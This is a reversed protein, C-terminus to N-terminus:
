GNWMLQYVREVSGVDSNGIASNQLNQDSTFIGQRNMLDIYYTNDFINPTRLDQFTFADFDKTPCISKLNKTFTQDMIRDQPYLRNDFSGCQSIRITHGGSLAVVDTPDLNQNDALSQLHTCSCSRRGIFSEYIQALAHGGLSSNDSSIADLILDADAPNFISRIFGEDWQGDAMRQNLAKKKKRNWSDLAKGVQGTKRKFDGGSVVIDWESWQKEVIEKCQDEECWAEEFHFRSSKAKKREGSDESALPIDVILAKHDSAWWQLVTVDAGEFNMLWEENCLGRDLREMVMNTEHRNCWTLDTKSSSFDMLHCDDIAERFEEMAGASRVRGGVKEALSVIENFDGVCLWAGHVEGKIKRLLDWSFHRQSADPNGYFCTLSWPLFNNGAVTALIHGVSNSDVRLKIEHKDCGEVSQGNGSSNSEGTLAQVPVGDRGTRSGGKARAKSKISVKKRQTTRGINGQPVVESGGISFNEVGGIELEDQQVQKGKSLIRNLAEAEVTNDPGGNKRKKKDHEAVDYDKSVRHTKGNTSQDGFPSGMTLVCGVNVSQAELGPGTRNDLGLGVELDNKGKQPVHLLHGGSKNSMQVEMSKNVEMAVNQIGRGETEHPVALRGHEVTGVGIGTGTPGDVGGYKETGAGGSEMVGQDTRAAAVFGNPCPDDDRLWSGYKPILRGQVDKEKVIEAECDKQEHGWAGCQFCLLPLHEFKFQIWHQKGSNPIFRGVFISKNIPFGIKMRVYGQLFMRSEDGWRLEAVEGAMEGLRIANKKTFLKIPLGKVKVWCYVKDLNADGWHGSVPWKELLLLGGNFLWPQKGLVFKANEVNKFTIRVLKGESDDDNLKVTWDGIGKWMRSFITNFLNEKIDRRSIIRGVLSKEGFTIAADENEEWVEEQDMELRSTMNVIEEVNVTDATAMMLGLLLLFEIM